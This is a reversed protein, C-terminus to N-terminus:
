GSLSKCCYRGVLSMRTRGNRCTSCGGTEGNVFQELAQVAEAALRLPSLLANTSEVGHPVPSWAGNLVSTTRDAGLRVIPPATSNWCLEPVIQAALNSVCMRRAQRM